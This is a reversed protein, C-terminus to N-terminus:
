KESTPRRTKRTIQLAQRAYPFMIGAQVTVVKVLRHEIRGHARANSTHAPPIDKWPLAKLQHGLTPQNGKVTLLYHAGRELVLDEAHGKQCHLADATVMAGTLDPIVTCLAPFKSIENTTGAVDVQGLVVASHHDIAALLHQADATDSASGRLTKGDIAVARRKGIPPETRAAAWQGIAADLTDGDLRQLTRRITSECPPDSDVDLATLVHESANAAWEGIAACSRSGALVACVALGLIM